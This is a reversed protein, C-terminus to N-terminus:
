FPRFVALIVSFLALLALGGGLSAFLGASAPREGVAARRIRATLAGSLGAAVVGITIKAHVWGMARFADWHPVVIALGGVFALVLGPSSVQLLARRADTLGDSRSAGERSSAAVAMMAAALGGGIWLIVGVLHLVLAVSRM